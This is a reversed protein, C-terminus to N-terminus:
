VIEEERGWSGGFVHAWAASFPVGAVMVALLVLLERPNLMDRLRSRGGRPTPQRPVGYFRRDSM